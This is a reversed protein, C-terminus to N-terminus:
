SIMVLGFLLAHYHPRELQEGYEGAMFFRVPGYKRRLRYMFKQFDQYTLSGHMPYNEPSYTLTIFSNRAHCRSEAYCRVAWMEQRELRCGICQGCKLQVRRSNKFEHFRVPGGALDKFAEIPKYCAM